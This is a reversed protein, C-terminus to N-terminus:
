STATWQMHVSSPCSLQLDLGMFSIVGTTPHVSVQMCANLATLEPKLHLISANVSRSLSSQCHEPHLILGIIYLGDASPSYRNSSAVYTRMGCAHKGNIRDNRLLCYLQVAQYSSFCCPAYRGGFAEQTCCIIACSLRRCQQPLCSVYSNSHRLSRNSIHWAFLSNMGWYM